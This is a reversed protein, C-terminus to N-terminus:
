IEEIFQVGEAQSLLQIISTHHTKVHTHLTIVLAINENDLLQGKNISLDKVELNNSKLYNMFSSINAVGNFEIYVDILKGGSRIKDNIRHLGMMTIAVGIGGIIAGSYYGIGIALGLCAAAWLGAATTLGRIQNRRTVIITGAGLFGIGSIVQAGMRAPDVDFPEFSQYIYQNTLMVMSSGICVLMYTRFGAPRNKFERELGLIGGTVMALFIRFATSIANLEHLTQNIEALIDSLM